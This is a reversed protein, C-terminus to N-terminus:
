NHWGYKANDNAGTSDDRLYGPDSIRSDIDGSM